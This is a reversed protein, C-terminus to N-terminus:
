QPRILLETRRNDARGAASADSAVPHYQAHSVAELKAPDVGKDQLYRVVVAARAGALEWNTPYRESLERGVPVDDTNGVVDIRNGQSAMSSLQGSVKDLAGRGKPHLEVSGSHYLLDNSMRVRIGNEVQEIKVQDASIESRLSSELSEQQQLMANYKSKTVCGGLHAAACVALGALTATTWGHRM